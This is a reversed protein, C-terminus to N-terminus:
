IREGGKGVKRRGRAARLTNFFLVVPCGMALLTGALLLTKPLATALFASLAIICCIELALAGDDVFLGILERLVSKM